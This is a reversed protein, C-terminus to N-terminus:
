LWLPISFEAWHNGGSGSLLRYVTNCDSLNLLNKSEDDTGGTMKGQILEKQIPPGELLTDCCIVPLGSGPCGQPKPRPGAELPPLFTAFILIKWRMELSNGISGYHNHNTISSGM